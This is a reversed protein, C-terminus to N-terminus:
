LAVFIGIIAIIALIVLIAYMAKNLKKLKFNLVFLFAIMAMMIYYITDNLNLLTGILYVVPVIIAASTVPLGTYTDSKTETNATHVNFWGLRIIGALVYASAIILALINTSNEITNLFLVTPFVVFSVTDALSDIEVGFHKEADTRKCMRAVTGDFMDCVGSIILCILAAKLHHTSAMGIVAAIVGIYTLIVAKGYYGILFRKDKM